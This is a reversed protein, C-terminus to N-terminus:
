KAGRTNAANAAAIAAARKGTRLNDEALRDAKWREKAAFIAKSFASQEATLPEAFDETTGDQFTVRARSHDFITEVACGYAETKHSFELPSQEAGQATAAVPAPSVPPIDRMVGTAADVAIPPSISESSTPKPSANKSDTSRM